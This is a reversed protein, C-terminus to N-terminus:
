KVQAGMVNFVEGNRLIYLQNDKIQKSASPQEVQVDEVANYIKDDDYVIHIPRDYSNVANIEVHLNGLENQSVVVTGDVFMYLTSLMGNTLTAYFSPYVSGNMVGQNALVSGSAQSDNIAYTGVPLTLREDAKDAFFIVDVVDSADAAEISLYVVTGYADDQAEITVNDSSNYSRNVEGEQADYDLGASKAPCIMTILYRVANDCIVDVEATVNNEADQTVVVQGKLVKNLEYGNRDMSYTAVYTYNDIFNFMGGEAGLRGFLGDNGYTGEIQETTMAMSVALLSDPTYGIIQIAGMEEIQDNFEAVITYQETTAPTPITYYMEIDYQKGDFCTFSAIMKTTDNDQEVVGNIDSIQPMDWNYNNM